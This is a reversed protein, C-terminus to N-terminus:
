IIVGKKKRQAFYISIIFLIHVSYIYSIQFLLFATPNPFNRMDGEYILWPVQFLESSKGEISEPVGSPLVRSVHFIIIKMKQSPLYISGRVRMLLDGFLHKKLEWYNSCYCHIRYLLVKNNRM